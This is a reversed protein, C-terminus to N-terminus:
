VYHVRVVMQVIVVEAGESENGRVEYHEEQASGTVGCNAQRRYWHCVTVCIARSDSFSGSDKMEAYGM